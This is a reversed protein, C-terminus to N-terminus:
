IINESKDEPHGSYFRKTQIWRIQRKISLFSSNSNFVFLVVFLLSLFLLLLFFFLSFNERDQVRAVLCYSQWPSLSTVMTRLASSNSKKDLHRNQGERHVVFSMAQSLILYFNCSFM